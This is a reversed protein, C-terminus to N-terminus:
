WGCGSINDVRGISINGAKIDLNKPTENICGNGAKLEPANLWIDSSVNFTVNILSNPSKLLFLPLSYNNQIKQFNHYIAKIDEIFINRIILGSDLSASFLALNSYETNEIEILVNSLFHNSETIGDGWGLQFPAGNKNHMITVNEVRTDRYLKIADDWTDIKSNKIISGEGGGFGDSNSHFDPKSRTNVIHINDAIIPSSFSTIAYTRANEIRLNKIFITDEATTKTTSIAGFKWKECDHARDDGHAGGKCSSNPHEQKNKGLAWNATNTGFIRSTERDKGIIEISGQVRFGGNITVGKNITITKICTPVTWYFGHLDNDINNKSSFSSTKLFIFKGNEPDWEINKLDVGEPINLKNKIDNLSDFSGHHLREKSSM